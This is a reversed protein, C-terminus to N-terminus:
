SLKVVVEHLRNKIRIPICKDKKSVFKAGLYHYTKIKLSAVANTERDVQSYHQGACPLTRSAFTVSVMIHLM